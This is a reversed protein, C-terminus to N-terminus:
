FARWDLVPRLMTFDLLGFEGLVQSMKGEVMSVSGRLAHRRETEITRATRMLKQTVATNTNM